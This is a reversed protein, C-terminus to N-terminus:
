DEPLWKEMDDLFKKSKLHIGVNEEYIKDLIRRIERKTEKKINIQGLKEIKTVSFLRLLQIAQPLAHYRHTDLHFHKRCLLGHYKSSYDFEGETEGCILCGRWEPGVGFYNLLNVEFIYTIVEANEGSEVKEIAYKFQNFLNPASEGDELAADILTAIYTIYATHVIDEHIASPYEIFKLDRVFSLGKHNINGILHGYVFPQSLVKLKWNPSKSGRLFFMKKGFRDTFIKVLFDRERYKRVYLVIGEVEELAM